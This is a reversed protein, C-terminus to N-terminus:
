KPRVYFIQIFSSNDFRWILQANTQMLLYSGSMPQQFSFLALAPGQGGPKM